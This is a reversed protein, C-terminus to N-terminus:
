HSIAIEFCVKFQNSFSALFILLIILMHSALFAARYTKLRKIRKGNKSSRSNVGNM